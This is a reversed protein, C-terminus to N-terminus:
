INIWRRSLWQSQALHGVFPRNTGSSSLIDSGLVLSKIPLFNSGLKFIRHPFLTAKLEEKTLCRFMRQEDPSTKDFETGHGFHAEFVELRLKLLLNKLGESVLALYSSDLEVDFVGSAAQSFSALGYVADTV